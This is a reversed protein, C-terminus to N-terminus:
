EWISKVGPSFLMSMSSDRNCTSPRIDLFLSSGGARYTKIQSANGKPKERYDYVTVLARDPVEVVVDWLFGGCIFCVFDSVQIINM